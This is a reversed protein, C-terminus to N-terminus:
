RRPPRGEQRDQVAQRHARNRLHVEFDEKVRGPVATYLKGPCDNCRIRPLYQFQLEPPAAMGPDLQYNKTPKGTSLDIAYPRMLPEFDSDPHM